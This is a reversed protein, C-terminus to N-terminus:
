RAKALWVPRGLAGAVRRCVAPVTVYEVRGGVGVFGLPGQPCRADGRHAGVQRTPQAAERTRNRGHVESLVGPRQYASYECEGSAVVLLLFREWRRPRM